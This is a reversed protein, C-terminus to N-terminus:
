VNVQSVLLEGRRQPMTVLLKSTYPPVLSIETISDSYAFEGRDYGGIVMVRGKYVLSRHGTLTGPLQINEWAISYDGHVADLSLMEMSQLWQYQSYGFLVFINNNYVVSSAAQRCQLTENTTTAEM